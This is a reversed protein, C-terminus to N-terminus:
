LRRSLENIDILRHERTGFPSLFSKGALVPRRAHRSRCSHGLLTESVVISRLPQRDRERLLCRPASEWPFAERMQQATREATPQTTVAFHVICRRDLALVLFGYLIQFRIPTVTVIDVSVMDRVPSAKM